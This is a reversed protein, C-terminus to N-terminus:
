RYTGDDYKRPGEKKPRPPDGLDRKSARYKVYAFMAVGFFAVVLLSLITNDM